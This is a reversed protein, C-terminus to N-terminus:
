SNPTEQGCKIFAREYLALGGIAFSAALVSLWGGEAMGLTSFGPLLASVAAGYFLLVAIGPAGSNRLLAHARRAAADAIHHQGFPQHRRLLEFLGEGGGIEEALM